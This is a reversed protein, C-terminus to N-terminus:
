QASGEGCGDGPGLSSANPPPSGEGEDHSPMGGRHLAQMGYTYQKM